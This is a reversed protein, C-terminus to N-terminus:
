HLKEAPLMGSTVIVDVKLQALEAARDPLREPKNDAFRWDIALSKGEVYGLDRMARLFAGYDAESSWAISLTLGVIRRPTIPIDFAHPITEIKRM